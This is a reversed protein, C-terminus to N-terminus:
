IQRYLIQQPSYLGFLTLFTNNTQPSIRSIWLLEQATCNGNALISWGISTPQETPYHRPANTIVLSQIDCCPLLTYSYWPNLQKQYGLQIFPAGRRAQWVPHHNVSPTDLLRFLVMENTATQCNITPMNKHVQGVWRHQLASVGANCITISCHATRNLKEPPFDVCKGGLKGRM